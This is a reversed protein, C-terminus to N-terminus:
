AVRQAAGASYGNIDRLVDEVRHRAEAASGAAVHVLFKEGRPGADDPAAITLGADELASRASETLRGFVVVELMAM